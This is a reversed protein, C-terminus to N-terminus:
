RAAPGEVVEVVEFMEDVGIERIFAGMAEMRERQVAAMEPDDAMRAADDRSMDFLGFSIVHDPDDFARLHYANVLQAPMERPEWAARFADFSGPTLRRETLLCLM